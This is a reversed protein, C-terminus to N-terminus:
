RTLLVQYFWYTGASPVGDVNTAEFCGAPKGSLVLGVDGVAVGAAAPDFGTDTWKSTGDFNGSDIPPAATSSTVGLLANIQQCVIVNVNPLVALPDICGAACASPDDLQSVGTVADGALIRWTSGDNANAPAVPWALGSGEREFVHCSKDGPANANAYGAAVANEFSIGGESCGRSQLTKAAQELNRAQSLIQSAMIKAQEPAVADADTADSRMLTYTLAAILAIAVLIFVLANGRAATASASM